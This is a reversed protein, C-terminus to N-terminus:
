LNHGYEVTNFIAPKNKSRFVLWIHLDKKQIECYISSILAKPIFIDNIEDLQLAYNM